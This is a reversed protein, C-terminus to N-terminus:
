SYVKNLLKNSKLAVFIVDRSVWYRETLEKISRNKEKLFKRLDSIPVLLNGAFVDAETEQLKGKLQSSSGNYSIHELIIHGIEHAVTFRNRTDPMNKNYLILCHGCNDMRTIGLITGLDAELVKIDLKKILDNLKVPIIKDLINTWTELAKAKSLSYRPKINHDNLM